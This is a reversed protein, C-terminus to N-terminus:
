DQYNPEAHVGTITLGDSLASAVCESVAAGIHSQGSVRRSYREFRVEGSMHVYTGVVTVTYLYM